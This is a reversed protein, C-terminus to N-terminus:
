HEFVNRATLLETGNRQFGVIICTATEENICVRARSRRERKQSESRSGVSRSNKKWTDAALYSRDNPRHNREAVLNKLWRAIVYWMIRPSRQDTPGGSTAPTGQSCVNLAYKSVPGLDLGRSAISVRLLSSTSKPARPHLSVLNSIKMVNIRVHVDSAISTVVVTFERDHQHEEVSNSWQDM